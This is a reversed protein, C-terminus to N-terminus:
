GGAQRHGVKRLSSRYSQQKRIQLDEKLEPARQPEPLRLSSTIEKKTEEIWEVLQKTKQEALVKMQSWRRRPQFLFVTKHPTPLEKPKQRRGPKRPQLAIRTSENQSETAKSDSAEKSSQDSTACGNLRGAFQQLRVCAETNRKRARSFPSARSACSASAQVLVRQTRAQLYASIPLTRGTSGTACVERHIAAA